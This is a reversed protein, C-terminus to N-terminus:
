RSMAYNRLTGIKPRSEITNRPEDRITRRNPRVRALNASEGNRLTGRWEEAHWRITRSGQRLSEHKGRMLARM